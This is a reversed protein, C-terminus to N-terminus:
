GSLMNTDSARFCNCRRETPADGETGCKGYHDVLNTKVVFDCLCSSCLFKHIGAGTKV